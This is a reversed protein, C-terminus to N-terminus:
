FRVVTGGSVAPTFNTNHFGDQTLELKSGSLVGLALNANLGFAPTFMVDLGGRGRFGVAVDFDSTYPVLTLDAGVYPRWRAGGHRWVVGANVPLITNWVPVEEPAVGQQVALRGLEAPTYSRRTTQGEVGGVFHVGGALKVDLEAGWTVFGMSGVFSQGIRGTVGVSRVEPAAGRISARGTDRGGRTTVAVRPRPGDEDATRTRPRAARDGDDDDRSGRARMAARAEAIAEADREAEDDEARTRAAPRAPATDEDDYSAGRSAPRAPTPDEDDDRAASRSAPRAPPVDDDSAGRSAPRAPTSDEDDDRAASRAAPRAPTSDEDNRTAARTPARTSEARPAAARGAAEKEVAILDTASGFEFADEEAAPAPARAPASPTATRAKNEAEARARASGAPKSAKGRGGSRSPSDFAFDDEEDSFTSPNVDPEDKAQKKVPPAAKPKAQVAAAPAPKAPAPAGAALLSKVWQGAESALTGPDAEVDISERGRIKRARADYYVLAVQLGSGGPEVTGIIVADGDNATAIGALCGTNTLCNADLTPPAKALETVSDFEGSFDLEASVLSTVNRAVKADINVGVFPAIVVTGGALAPAPLALLALLPLLRRRM